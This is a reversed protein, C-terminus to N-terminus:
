IFVIDFILMSTPHLWFPSIENVKKRHENRTCNLNEKERMPNHNYLLSWCHFCLFLTIFALLSKDSTNDTYFLNFIVTKFRNILFWNQRYNNRKQWYLKYVCKDSHLFYACYNCDHNRVQELKFYIFIGHMLWEM